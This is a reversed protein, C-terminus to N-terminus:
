AKQKGGRAREGRWIKEEPQKGLSEIMTKKRASRGKVRQKWERTEGRAKEGTREEERAKREESRAKAVEDTWIKTLVPALMPIAQMIVATFKQATEEAQPAANRIATGFHAIFEENSLVGDHNIDIEDFAKKSLEDSHVLMSKLVEEQVELLPVALIKKFAKGILLKAHRKANANLRGHEGPSFSPLFPTM